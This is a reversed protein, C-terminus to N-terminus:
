DYIAGVNAPKHARKGTAQGTAPDRPSVIHGVEHTLTDGLGGQALALAEETLEVAQEQAQKKETM